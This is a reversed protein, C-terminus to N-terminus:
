RRGSFARIQEPTARSILRTVKRGDDKTVQILRCFDLLRLRSLMAFSTYSVGGQEFRRVPKSPIIPHPAFATTSFPFARMMFVRARM